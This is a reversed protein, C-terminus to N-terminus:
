LYFSILRKVADPGNAVARRLQGEDIDLYNIFRDHLDNFFNSIEENSVAKNMRNESFGVSARYATELLARNKEIYRDLVDDIAEVIQAAAEQDIFDIDYTHIAVKLKM